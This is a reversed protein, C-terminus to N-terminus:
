NKIIHNVVEAVRKAADKRHKETAPRMFPRESMKSTGFELAASYPAHSTVIVKPDRSPVIVTDINNDLLGTDRNPASGPASPVHFKGSVSNTTISREAEVEIANGVEYLAAAVGRSIRTMSDLRKTVQKRGTIKVM